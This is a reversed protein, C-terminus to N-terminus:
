LIITNQKESSVSLDKDKGLPCPYMGCNGDHDRDEHMLNCCWITPEGNAEIDSNDFCLHSCSKDYYM